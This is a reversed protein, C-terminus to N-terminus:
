FVYSIYSIDLSKFIYAIRVSPLHWFQEEETPSGDENSIIGYSVLLSEMAMEEPLDMSDLNVNFVAIHSAVSEKTWTPAPPATIFSKTAPVGQKGDIAPTVTVEYKTAAELEGAGFTQKLATPNKDLQTGELSVTYTVAENTYKEAVILPRDWVVQPSYPDSGDFEVNFPESTVLTTCSVADSKKGEGHGYKVVYSTRISYTTDGQLGSVTIDDANELVQESTLTSGSPDVWDVTVKIGTVDENILKGTTLQFGNPHIVSCSPTDPVTPPVFTYTLQEGNSYLQTEYDHYNSIQDLKVMYCNTQKSDGSRALSEEVYKGFRTKAFGLEFKKENDNVWSDPENWYKGSIFNEAINETPLIYLIFVTANKHKFICENDNASVRDSLKIHDNVLLSNDLIDIANIERERQGLFTDCRSGNFPSQTFDDIIQSFFSEDEGSRVKPIETTFKASIESYFEELAIKFTVLPERIGAFRVAPTSMLLSNVKQMMNKLSQLRAVANTILSTTIENIANVTKDKCVEEIPTLYYKIPSSNELDNSGDEGKTVTTAKYADIAEVYTAPFNELITDGYFKVVISDDNKIETGDITVAVSGSINLHPIMKVDVMLKGAISTSDEDKSVEKEFTMYVRRGYNIRSVFHTPGSSGKVLNCYAANPSGHEGGSLNIDKYGAQTVRKLVVRVKSESDKDNVAYKGSGEVEILGSMFELQVVAGVEFDKTRSESSTEIFVDEATRDDNPAHSIGELDKFLEFGSYMLSKRADFITGLRINEGLATRTIETNASRKTLGSYVTAVLTCLFATQYLM